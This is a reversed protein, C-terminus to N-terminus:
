WRIQFIEHDAGEERCQLVEVEIETEYLKGLGSILGLVFNKLGNRESIYHLHLEREQVASVKFEPPKLNPFILMVRNHLDPLYLLFDKLTYGGSEILPGYKQKATVLVWYEGFAFLVDKLPLDLVESAAIALDFTSQDSYSEHSLFLDVDVKSKSKIQEWAEEGFNTTVLGQIADNVIGYM